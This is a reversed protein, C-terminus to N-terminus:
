ERQQRARRAARGRPAGLDRLRHHDQFLVFPIMQILVAGERYREKLGFMPFGRYLFEMSFLLVTWRAAYGWLDLSSEAYFHNADSSRAAM